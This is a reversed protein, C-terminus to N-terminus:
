GDFCGLFLFISSIVEAVRGHPPKYLITYIYINMIKRGGGFELDADWTLRTDSKKVSATGEEREWV